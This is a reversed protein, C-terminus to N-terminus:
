RSEGKIQLPIGAVLWEVRQAAAAVRQNLIGQLDRFKRALRQEPVVGQGVDNAVAIVEGHLGPLLTCLRDIEQEVALRRHLLNGLWLTLCDVIILRDPATERSLADALVIEEEVTRWHAPRRARHAAIRTAWEEDGPIEPATALYVVSGQGAALAEARRSKGSRAGGLILTVAM